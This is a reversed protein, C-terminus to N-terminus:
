AQKRSGRFRRWGIWGLSAAVLAFGYTSPEPIPRIQNNVYGNFDYNTWTTYSGDASITGEFHVQNQPFTGVANYGALAGSGDTQRFVNNAFLFDMESSWNKVTLTVGAAIYINNANLISAAGSGFDLITDATINLTGVNIYSANLYVTGGALQLTDISLANGLSGGQFEMTGSSLKVTGAFNFASNNSTSSFTFTGAGTKEFLGSGSLRGGFTNASSNSVVLSTNAAISVLGTGTLGGITNKNGGGGSVAFTAGSSVNVTNRVGGSGQLVNNATVNVTGATVNIAGTFTNNGSLSLTGSGTKQLALAGGSSGNSIPGSIATNGAGGVTFTQTGSSKTGTITGSLTMTGGTSSIAVDQGITAGSGLTIAGSWSNNGSVNNLAGLDNYGSGNLTLAESVVSIGNQLQLTGGSNVLTGNNMGSLTAGLAGGHRINLIGNNITTVGLYANGANYNDATLIMTGTGEKTFGKTTGSSILADVQLTNSGTVNISNNDNFAIGGVGGVGGSITATVSNGTLLDNEVTLSGNVFLTGGHTEIAGGRMTISGLTEAPTYAQALELRGDSNITIAATDSIQESYYVRVTASGDRSTAGDLYTANGDGITLSGLIATNPQGSVSTTFLELTGSKVDTAGTYYNRDGGFQVTGSSEIVVSGTDGGAKGVQNMISVNGTGSITLTNGNLRLATPAYQIYPGIFLTDELATTASNRITADGALTINGMWASNGSINNLAGSGNVGSGSLSMTMYQQTENANYDWSNRGILALTAGNAVTVVTKESSLGSHNGLAAFGGVKTTGSAVLTGENVTVTGTFTNNGSVQMTGAGSKIVNRDGSGSNIINASVNLDTAAAGEAVNFTTSYAALGLNGSITASSSSANTTVGGGSTSLTLTGTGTTVTGGTLNLGSIADSNGNLNFVGSANSITVTRHNAIQDSADLRVTAAGITLDGGIANVGANKALVLTGNNVTTLGSNSNSESGSLTVTGSGGINLAAAGGLKNFELNGAGTTTLENALNVTGSFTLTGADSGITSSSNLNVQGGLTNNGSINRVAGAGSIGSGNINFSAPSVSIGGALQLEAGASVSSNYIGSTGLASNNQLRLAGETVAVPGTFTNAGSLVLTGSGAKTFTAHYNNSVVGSITTLGSNDVTITRAGGGLSFAGSFTLDNSGGISFNGGVTVNNGLTRSGGSAFITGGNITLGGTGFANNHGAGLSGASLTTGGSYTNNGSLVLTGAGAKTLSGTGSVVGSITTLGSNDVTITRGSSGLAVSGTLTLDNSGGISFNGGVTVNNGLTRSGGSAFITGGNITLGGTGFANNHGAGLSGASLTTGGSYTNSGSLVLTGAGDKTLSRTGSGNSIVGTVTLDNTANTSDAVTFTRNAGLAVNTAITAGQANNSASYTVNGGLTLTGTGTISATSGTAGGGMTLAGITESYSGLALTGDFINVAVAPLAAAGLTLTGGAASASGINIAGSFNNNTNSITLNGSGLKTLGVTGSLKVSITANFANTNITGENALTITANNHTGSITYGSTDFTISRTTITSNGITVTGATGGFVAHNNTGSWTQHSTGSTVWANNKTWAASGGNATGSADADWYLTTQTFSLPAIALAGLLYAISRRFLGSSRVHTSQARPLTYPQLM